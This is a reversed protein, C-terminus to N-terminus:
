HKVVMDRLLLAKSSLIRHDSTPVQCVLTRKQQQDFKWFYCVQRPKFKTPSFTVTLWFGVLLQLIITFNSETLPFYINSIHAFFHSPDTWKEYWLTLFTYNVVWLWWCFMCNTEPNESTKVPKWTGLFRSSPFRSVALYIFISYLIYYM